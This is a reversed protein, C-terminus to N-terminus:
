VVPWVGEALSDAEGVGELSYPLRGDVGCAEVPVICGTGAPSASGMLGDGDDSESAVYSLRPGLGFQHDVVVAEAAALSGLVGANAVVKVYESYDIEGHLGVVEGDGAAVDRIGEVVSDAGVKQVALLGALGERV